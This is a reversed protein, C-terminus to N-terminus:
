VSQLTGAKDLITKWLKFVKEEIIEQKKVEKKNKNARKAM